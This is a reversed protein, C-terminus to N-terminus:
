EGGCRIWEFTLKLVNLLPEITVHEPGDSRQHYFGYYHEPWKFPWLTLAKLGAQSFSGADTGIGLSAPRM